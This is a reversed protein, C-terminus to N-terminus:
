GTAVVPRWRASGGPRTWRDRGDIYKQAASVSVLGFHLSTRLANGRKSRTLISHSMEARSTYFRIETPRALRSALRRQRRSRMRLSVAAAPAAKVAPTASVAESAVQSSPMPVAAAALSSTSNAPAASQGSGFVFVGGAGVTLASGGPLATSNAMILTGAMVTTGGSYTRGDTSLDFTGSGTKTIGFGGGSQGIGGAIVVNGTATDITQSGGILTLPLNITQTNPSQNMIDGGLEVANGSLVLAGADANFTIGSM